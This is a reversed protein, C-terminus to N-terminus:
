KTIKSGEKNPQPPMPIPKQPNPLKSDKSYIKKRGSNEDM